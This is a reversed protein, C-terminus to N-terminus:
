QASLTVTRLPKADGSATRNFILVSGSGTASLNTVGIEDNITDVYIGQPFVLGTTAGTMVRKPAVNGNDTRNFIWIAGTGSVGIEENRTDVYIGSPNQLLTASGAITRLTEVEGNATRGFVTVSPATDSGGANVVGIETNLADVYIGAPHNLPGSTPANAPIAAGPSTATQCSAALLM